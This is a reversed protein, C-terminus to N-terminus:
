AVVLQKSVGLVASSAYEALKADGWASSAV